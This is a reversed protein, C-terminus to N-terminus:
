LELSKENQLFEEIGIYLIGNNDHWPAIDDKVVVIKRFSDPIRNLSNIEQIRKDEGEINLSSQIYFSKDADKAVFDVELWTRIDKGNEDRGRYEVVGVDVSYGRIILENFIINEMIHNEEQQRFELKANRLGVDVFYYKLPTSLYKKGKVDYRQVKQLIFADEFYGIYRDITESSISIKRVSRFANSLNAPNTLSGISSSLENLLDDLVTKENRIDYREIVDAMYTKEFLGVLYDSKEKHSNLYLIRPLGGYTYYEKWAKRGDSKYVSCFERFSLPYVRIEDGRDRFQTVIESSLLKSNSGTIYLDVNKLKMLGLVTDIFSITDGPLYPNKIIQVFQIEDIFVYYRTQTDRVAFRIYKDLEDPNRYRMNNKEDLALEIIQENKIDVSNLYQHFLTFLLFSKGSRRVGTIVKIMGNDKKQILQNLYQPREIIM